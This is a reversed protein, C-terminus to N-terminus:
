LYGLDKAMQELLNDKETNSLTKFDKGKFKEKLILIENDKIKKQELETNSKWGNIKGM